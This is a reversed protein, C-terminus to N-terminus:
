FCTGCAQKAHRLCRQRATRLFLESHGMLNGDDLGRQQSRTQIISALPGTQGSRPPLKTTSAPACVYRSLSPWANSPPPSTTDKCSPPRKRTARRSVAPSCAVLMLGDQLLAFPECYWVPVHLAACAGTVRDNLFLVGFPWEKISFAFYSYTYVPPRSPPASSLIAWM